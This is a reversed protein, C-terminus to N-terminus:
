DSLFQTSLFHLRNFSSNPSIPPASGNIASMSSSCIAPIGNPSAFGCASATTPPWPTMSTPRVMDIIYGGGQVLRTDERLLHGTAGASLRPPVAGALSSLRACPMALAKARSGLDGQTVQAPTWQRPLLHSIKSARQMSLRTLVDKLYAYPDHGNLRASQILSM